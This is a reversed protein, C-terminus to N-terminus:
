GKGEREIRIVCSGLMVNMPVGGRCVLGWLDERVLM